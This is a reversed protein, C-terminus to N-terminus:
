AAEKTTIIQGNGSQGFDLHVTGDKEIHVAPNTRRGLYQRAHRLIEDEVQAPTATDPIPLDPIQRARGIRTFRVLRAM